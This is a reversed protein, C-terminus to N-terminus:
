QPPAHRREGAFIAWTVAAVFAMQGFAASTGWGADFLFRAVLTPIVLALAMVILQTRLPVSPLRESLRRDSTESQQM